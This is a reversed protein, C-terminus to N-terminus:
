DDLRELCWRIEAEGPCTGRLVVQRAPSPGHSQAYDTATEVSLRCDSATLRWSPASEPCISVGGNGDAEIPVGVPVHFHVAFPLDRALRLTGRHPRLRDLGILRRGDASMELRREHILGYRGLYGDHTAEIIASDGAAPMQVTVNAPGGLGPAGILRELTKHRVFRGSSQEDLVLTSHSATQRAEWRLRRAAPGPMGRNAILVTGAHTLEFSLCGAEALASQAMPPPAGCDAILVTEGRAMRAYGSQGPGTEGPGGGSDFALVTALVDARANGVGNFRALRGTAPTMVHLFGLMRGVFEALAVPVTLGRAGYCQRIPLVDLAVDILVDPNRSIHGGDDLIQRQLAALLAAEFRPRESDQGAIALSALVLAMLCELEPLGPGAQRRRADLSRLEHGLATTFLRYFAPEADDLLFGASAIWSMVRRAIVDPEGAPGVGGPTSRNRAAWDSVLRRAVTVAVTGGTARLHGLWGFGHLERAWQRNPPPVGFPSSEGIDAVAGALGLQGAALEGLFTPDKPRMDSPVLLFEDARPRILRWRLPPWELLRGAMSGRRAKASLRNVRWREAWTPANGPPVSM